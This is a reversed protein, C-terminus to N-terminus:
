PAINEDIKSAPAGYRITSITDEIGDRLPDSMGFTCLYILDDELTKRFQESEIDFRQSLQQLDNLNIEKFGYSLVKQGAAAM